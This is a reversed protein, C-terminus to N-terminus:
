VSTDFSLWKEVDRDIYELIEKMYEGLDTLTEEITSNLTTLRPLIENRIRNREYIDSSNSSDERYEINYELAYALIEGKSTHLLPRYISGSIASM